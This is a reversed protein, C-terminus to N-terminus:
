LGSVSMFLATGNVLVQTSDDRTSSDGGLRSFHSSALRFRPPALGVWGCDLESLFCLKSQKRPSFLILPHMSLNLIGM